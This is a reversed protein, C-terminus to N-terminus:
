VFYTSKTKKKTKTPMTMMMMMVLVMVFSYLYIVRDVVLPRFKYYSDRGSVDSLVDM